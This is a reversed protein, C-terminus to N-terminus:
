QREEWTGNFHKDLKWRMEPGSADVAAREPLPRLHFESEIMDMLYGATNPFIMLDGEDLGNEFIIRRWTLVDDEYCSSGAVYCSLPDVRRGPSKRPLVRPDFAIDGGFWAESMSLSLGDVVAVPEKVNRRVGSVKFASFGAQDMLARGPEALVAIGQEILMTQVSQGGLRCTLIERLADAGSSPSWHPYLGAPAKSKAFQSHRAETFQFREWDPQSLYNIPLGGGINITDATPWESRVTRLIEACALLCEARQDTSYGSLHFALGKVAVRSHHQKLLECCELVEEHMMGFRSARSFDNWRLMVSCPRSGIPLQLLQKLEGISDIAILAGVQLARELFPRSKFPGSASCLEGRVGCALAAELEQLSSVDLGTGNEACIQFFSHSRNVKAAYLARGHLGLGKFVHEFAKLNKRFTNPFVINLPSGLAETLLLLDAPHQNILRGTEDGLLAPYHHTSALLGASDSRSKPLNDM